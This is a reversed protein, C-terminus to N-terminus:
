SSKKPYHAQEIRNRGAQQKGPGQQMQQPARAALGLIQPVDALAQTKILLKIWVRQNPQVRNGDAFGARGFGQNLKQASMIGPVPYQEGVGSGGPTLSSFIQEAVRQQLSVQRVIKGPRHMSEQAMKTGNDANEHFGLQPWVKHLRALFIPYGDIQDIGTQRCFGRATIAPERRQGAGCKAAQCPNGGLGFVIGPPELRQARFFHADGAVEFEVAQHWLIHQRQSFLESGLKSPIARDKEGGARALPFFRQNEVGQRAM